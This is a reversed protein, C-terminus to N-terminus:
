RSELRATLNKDSYNAEVNSHLLVINLILEVDCQFTTSVLIYQTLFYLTVSKYKKCNM